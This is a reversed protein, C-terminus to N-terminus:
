NERDLLKKGSTTVLYYTAPTNDERKASVHMFPGGRHASYAILQNLASQKHEWLWTAAEFVDRCIVDAAQGHMHQSFPSGGIAANLKRSRFGSSILVEGWEDRLPQLLNKAVGRLALIQPPQIVIPLEAALDPYQSSVFFEGWRFNPTVRHQLDETLM